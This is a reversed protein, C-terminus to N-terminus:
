GLKEAKNKLGRWMTRMRQLNEETHKFRKDKVINEIAAMEKKYKIIKKDVTGYLVLYEKDIERKLKGM